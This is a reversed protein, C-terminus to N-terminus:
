KLCSKIGEASTVGTLFVDYPAWYEKDSLSVKLFSIDLECSQYAQSNIMKDQIVLLWRHSENILERVAFIDTSEFINQQLYETHAIAEQLNKKDFDRIWYVISNEYYPVVEYPNRIVDKTATDNIIILLTIATLVVGIIIKLKKLTKSKM